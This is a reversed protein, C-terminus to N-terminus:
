KGSNAGTKNLGLVSIQGKEGLTAIRDGSPSFALEWVREELNKSQGLVTGELNHLRVKRSTGSVALLDQKWDLDAIAHRNQSGWKKSEADGEHVYVWGEGWGGDVVRVYRGENAAFANSLFDADRTRRPNEVRQGHIVKPETMDPGFFVLCGEAQAAADDLGILMAEGNSSDIRFFGSQFPFSNVEEPKQSRWSYFRTRSAGVLGQEGELWFLSNIQAPLKIEEILKVTEKREEEPLGEVNLANMDQPVSEGPLPIEQLLNGTKVDFFHVGGVRSKEMALFVTEENAALATVSTQFAKKWLLVLEGEKIQYVLVTGHSRNNRLNLVVKDNGAWVLEGLSLHLLEDEAEVRGTAVEEVEFREEAFAEFPLLLSCAGGFSRNFGGSGIGVSFGSGGFSPGGYFQAESQNEMLAVAFVAVIFIAFRKM